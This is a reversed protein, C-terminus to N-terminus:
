ATLGQLISLLLPDDKSRQYADTYISVICDRLEGGSIMHSPKDVPLWMLNMRTSGEGSLDPMRYSPAHEVIDAGNRRYLNIRRTRLTREELTGEEPCEVEILIGISNENTRLWQAVYQLLASGIGQNRSKETVALYELLHVYACSLPMTLAFGVANGAKKAVFILREGSAVSSVIDSFDIQESPPFSACYIAYVQEALEGGVNFLRSIELQSM